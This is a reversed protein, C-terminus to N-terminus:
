GERNLLNKLYIHHAGLKGGYNGATIRKLPFRSAARLARLMGEEVPERSLGDMVLEYACNEDPLLATQPRTALTPCWAVNTSARLKPYKSGVQSGSRVVGAPFPLILDEVSAAASAASLAADLVMEPDNGVFILNGGAVGSVVGFRDECVFEGDMVPIRWYRKDGFKKSIQHGDGFYRLSGGVRIEVGDTSKLGSFCATSACTMITQGVRNVVAKELSKRDFAFILVSAGPRGDPTSFRDLTSERAAEADCGIVSTAYGTMATVAADVLSPRSATVIVRTARMTFAEAFTDEVQIGNVKV